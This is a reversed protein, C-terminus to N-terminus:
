CFRERYMCVSVVCSRVHVIGESPCCLRFLSYSHLTYVRSATFSYMCIISSGRYQHIRKYKADLAFEYMRYVRTYHVCESNFFSEWLVCCCVDPTPTIVHYANVDGTVSFPPRCAIVQHCELTVTSTVRLCVRTFLCVKNLASQKLLYDNLKLMTSLHPCGPSVMAVIYALRYM